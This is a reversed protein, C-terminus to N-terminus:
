VDEIELIDDYPISIIIETGMDKGESFIEFKNNGNFYIDLREIVNNLGLGNGKKDDQKVKEGITENDSNYSADNQEINETEDNIANNMIMDIKEKDIGVGNDVISICIYKDMKYIAINIHGEREIDRIGHNICNEVIPQLVMCPLKINLYEEDEIEKRYKIEGSFRVNLIFIYTDVIRMEDALKVEDNVTINYRYFSAVKQIYEYTRDARELMALQAGANLTNFLFHPNIQAQLVKLHAEKLNAEMILEKENLEREKEMSERLRELYGPISSVMQNFAVTVVGVEDMAYVNVVGAKDLKGESVKDAAKALEYLPKTINRTVALVLFVDFLALVIFIIGSATELFRISSSLASYTDANERFLQSNLSTIYNRIYEYSQTCENYLDKYTQETRSRRENVTRDALDCYDQSLWYINREMVMIKNDTINNDFDSILAEYEELNQYYATISDYSMTDLVDTVSNQLKKISDEIKNIKVNSVYIKDIRNSLRNINYYMYFSVVFILILTGAVMVSLKSRISMDRLRKNLRRSLRM